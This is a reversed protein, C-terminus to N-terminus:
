GYIGGLFGYKTVRFLRTLIPFGSSSSRYFCDRVTLVLKIVWHRDSRVHGSDPVAFFGRHERRGDRYPTHVYWEFFVGRWGFLCSTCRGWLM